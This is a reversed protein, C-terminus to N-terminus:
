REFESEDETESAYVSVKEPEFGHHKINTFWQSMFDKLDRVRSPPVSDTEYFLGIDDQLFSTPHISCAKKDITFTIEPDRMSDGNQRFYHAISYENGGIAELVLDEFGESTLKMYYAEGELIPGAFVALKQYLRQELTLQASPPAMRVPTDEEEDPEYNMVDENDGDLELVADPTDKFELALDLEVKRRQLQVLKEESTFPKESELKAAELQRHLDALETKAVELETAIREALNEIRTINGLESEGLETTYTCKGCLQIGVGDGMRRILRVPFGAYSGVDLTDGANRGLKRSRVMFHEAAKTREDHPRGDITMQFEAPKNGTYTSLDTEMGTIKRETTAIQSPYHKGIKYQLDNRQSQWSSKLVTLRSIENDTEMKEKIRPDSVALAKFEAYQLMTSDVDECTRLTSRGTM